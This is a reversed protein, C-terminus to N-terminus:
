QQRSEIYLLVLSFILLTLGTFWLVKMFYLSVGIGFLIGTVFLLVKEEDHSHLNIEHEVVRDFVHKQKKQKQRARAKAM